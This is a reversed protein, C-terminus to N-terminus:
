VRYVEMLRQTTNTISYPSLVLNREKRKIQEKGDEQNQWKNAEKKLAESWIKSNEISLATAFPMEQAEKPSQDTIFVNLGSSQAEISVLGFGEHLSPFCFFDMANYYRYTDDVNHAFIVSDELDLDEVQQRTEDFLEGDGVLMLKSNQYEKHFENFVKVLFKHNKEVAFRGVHGVVFEDKINYRNRIENRTEENFKFKELEIGNTIINLKTNAIKKPFKWIGAEYSCAVYDTPCISMLPSYLAKVLTHKKSNVGMSHSHVIIKKVKCLRAALSMYALVSISGSHIHVIDYQNEKLYKHVPNFILKRSKGPMFPLGLEVIKGTKKIKERYNENECTYPTLVDISINELNANEIFNFIFVEQGGHLIPEGTIELIRVKKM